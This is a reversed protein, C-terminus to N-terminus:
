HRVPVVSPMRSLGNGNRYRFPVVFANHRVVARVHRGEVVVDVARFGDAVVGVLAQGRKKSGGNVAYIVPHKREVLSCTGVGRWVILCVRDKTGAFAYLPLGTVNSLLLRTRRLATPAGIGASAAARRIAVAYGAPLTAVPALTQLSSVPPQGSIGAVSASALCLASLPVVLAALRARMPLFRLLTSEGVGHMKAPMDGGNACPRERGTLTM